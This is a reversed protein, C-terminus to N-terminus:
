TDRIREVMARIDSKVREIYSGMSGTCDVTFCLDVEQADQLLRIVSAIEAQRKRVLRHRKREVTARAREFDDAAVTCSADAEMRRLEAEIDALRLADAAAAGDVPVAAAEAGLDRLMDSASRQGGRAAASPPHLSLALRFGRLTPSGLARVCRQADAANRVTVIALGSPRGVFRGETNKLMNTHIVPVHPKFLAALEEWTTSFHLGSVYVSARAAAGPMPVDRAGGSARATLRLGRHHSGHVREACRRAHSTCAMTVVARGSFKGAYKGHAHPVMEVFTVRGHTSCLAAVAERTSSWHLGDITVTSPSHM